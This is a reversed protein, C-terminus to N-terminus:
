LRSAEEPTRTTLALAHVREAMEAEILAYVMRQREVRPKGAFARAVVTVTFHTEGEPHAGGHGAHRHSDDQIELHEPALGETLKRRMREAYSTAATGM